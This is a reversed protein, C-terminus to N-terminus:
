EAMSNVTLGHQDYTAGAQDSLTLEIIKRTSASLRALLRGNANNIQQCRSASGELQAWYKDLGQENVKSSFPLQRKILQFFQNMGQQDPSFGFPKLYHERLAGNMQLMNLLQVQNDLAHEVATINRELMKQHVSELVRELKRSLALADQINALMKQCLEVIQSDVEAQQPTPTDSNSFSDTTMRQTSSM